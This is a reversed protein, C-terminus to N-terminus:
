SSAYLQWAVCASQEPNPVKSAAKERTGHFGYKSKQKEYSDTRESQRIRDDRFHERAIHIELYELDGHETAQLTGEAQHSGDKERKRDEHAEFARPTSNM